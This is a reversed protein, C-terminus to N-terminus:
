VFSWCPNRGAGQVVLNPKRTTCVCYCSKRNSEEYWNLSEIAVVPVGSSQDKLARACLSGPQWRCPLAPDPIHAVIAVRRCSMRAAAITTRNDMFRSTIKIINPTSQVELSDKYYIHYKRLFFDSNWFVPRNGFIKNSLFRAITCCGGMVPRQSWGLRGGIYADPGHNGGVSSPDSSLRWRWRGCATTPTSSCRTSYPSTATRCYTPAAGEEM